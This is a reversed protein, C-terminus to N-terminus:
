IRSILIKAVESVTLLGEGLKIYFQANRRPSKEQFPLLGTPIDTTTFLSCSEQIIELKWWSMTDMSLKTGARKDTSRKLTTIGPKIFYHSFHRLHTWHPLSKEIRLYQVKFPFKHSMYLHPLTPRWNVHHFIKQKFAHNPNHFTDYHNHNQTEISTENTLERKVGRGWLINKRQHWKCNSDTNNYKNQM